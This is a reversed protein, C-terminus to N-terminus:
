TAFKCVKESVLKYNNNFNLCIGNGFPFYNM